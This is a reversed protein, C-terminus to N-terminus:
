KDETNIARVQQEQIVLALSNREESELLEAVTMAPLEVEVTYSAEAEASREKNM